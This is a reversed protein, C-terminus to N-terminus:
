TKCTDELRRASGSLCCCCCCCCQMSCSRRSPCLMQHGRHLRRESLQAPLLLSPSLFPPLSPTILCFLHLYLSNSSVFLNGRQLLFLFFSGCSEGSFRGGCFFYFISERERKKKFHNKELPEAQDRHEEVASKLFRCFCSAAGGLGGGGSTKVQSRRPPLFCAGSAGSACLTHPENLRFM